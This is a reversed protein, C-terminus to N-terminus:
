AVSDDWGYRGLLPVFRCAGHTTRELQDGVKRVRVLVQEETRNAGPAPIAIPIVLRGGEALQAILPAPVEPAAATVLIARYPAFESWGYTGDFIKFHVNEIGLRRVSQRARRSLTALREVSYVQEFVYALVAAQYGSGSGIELARGTGDPELLETMRAVMSPQSISQKEGIPLASDTFAKAALAEDVFRDRPVRRIAALVGAHRVGRTALDKALRELRLDESL